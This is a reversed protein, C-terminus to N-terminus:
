HIPVLVLFIGLVAVVILVLFVALILILVLILTLVHILVCIPTLSQLLLLLLCGLELGSEIVLGLNPHGRRALRHRDPQGVQPAAAGLQRLQGLATKEELVYATEAVM